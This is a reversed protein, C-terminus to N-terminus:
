RELDDIIVQREQREQAKLEPTCTLEVVGAKDVTAGDLNGLLQKRPPPKHKAIVKDLKFRLLREVKIELKVDDSKAM